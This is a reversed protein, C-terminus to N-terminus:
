RRGPSRAPRQLPVPDFTGQRAAGPRCRVLRRLTLWAGKLAGHRHLAKVAYTSCSPTYPCHGPTAPSIEVRYRRVGAYMTRALRGAPRPASPDPTRAAAAPPSLALLMLATLSGWKCPCCRSAYSWWLHTDLCATVCNEDDTRRRGPASYGHRLKRPKSRDGMREGPDATRRRM